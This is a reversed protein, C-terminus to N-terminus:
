TILNTGKPPPLTPGHLVSKRRDRLWRRAYLVLSTLTSLNQSLGVWMERSLLYYPRDIFSSGTQAELILEDMEPLKHCNAAYTGHSCCLYGRILRMVYVDAYAIHHMCYRISLGTTLLEMETETGVAHSGTAIHHDARTLHSWIVREVSSPSTLSRQLHNFIVLPRESHM